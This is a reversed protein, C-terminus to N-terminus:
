LLRGSAAPDTNSESHLDACPIKYRFVLRGLSEAYDATWGSGYTKSTTHRICLLHTCSHAILKDRAKFGAWNRTKPLFERYPIGYQRAKLVGLQDIGTAGGSVVLDPQLAFLYLAILGDATSFDAPHKTFERSGVIALRISM